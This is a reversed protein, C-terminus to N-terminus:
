TGGATGEQAEHLGPDVPSEWDNMVHEKGAGFLRASNWSLGGCRSTGPDQCRRGPPLAIAYRRLLGRDFPIRMAVCVTV